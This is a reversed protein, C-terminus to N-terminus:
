QSFIDKFYIQFLIIDLKNDKNKKWKLLALDFILKSDLESIGNANSVFM